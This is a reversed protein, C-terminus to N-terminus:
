DFAMASYWWDGKKNKTIKAGPYVDDVGPAASTYIM